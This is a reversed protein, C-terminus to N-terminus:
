VHLVSLTHHAIMAEEDTTVVRADIKSDPGSIRDIGTSNAAVDLRLGLWELRACIASRIEPSHEGIGATFILADLGGLASALGGIEVAVRYTFLEIAARAAPDESALLVRMDGSIGSVGLLGSRHYLMDEIEATSHGQRALYFIVGPDISGCRTAMVLGDLTSFGMTTAISVGGKLACLSAGAGLHAIIVRGSTIEPATRALHRAIYEYSLGHFGYRRVERGTIASPLAVAKAIAPLTHHFATDFCAVQLLTPHAAAIARVPALNHPLHLPDLPTLAELAVMLGSTVRAPLSHDPGGHVIRHGVAALGRSGAHSYTFDFLDRLIIAFQTGRAWRKEARSEHRGQVTLHAAADIDAIEGRLVPALTEYDFLAFKLSSSGANLTLVSGAMDIELRDPASARRVYTELRCEGRNANAYSSFRHRRFYRFSGM